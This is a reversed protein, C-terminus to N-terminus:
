EGVGAAVSANESDIESSAEDGNTSSKEGAPRASSSSVFPHYNPSPQKHDQFDEENGCINCLLPKEVQRQAELSKGLTAAMNSARQSKGGGTRPKRKKIAPKEPQMALVLSERESENMGRLTALLASEDDTLQRLLAYTRLVNRLNM